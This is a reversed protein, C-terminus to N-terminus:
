RVHYIYQRENNGLKTLIPYYNSWNNLPRRDVRRVLQIGAQGIHTFVYYERLRSYLCQIFLMNMCSSHSNPLVFIIWFCLIIFSCYNININNHYIRNIYLVIISKKVMIKQEHLNSQSRMGGTSTWTIFWNGRAGPIKERSLIPM